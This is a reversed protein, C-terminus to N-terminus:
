QYGEDVYAKASTIVELARVLFGNSVESVKAM